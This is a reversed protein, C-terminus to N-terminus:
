SPRRWLLERIAGKGNTELGDREVGIGKQVTWGVDHQANTKRQTVEVPSGM